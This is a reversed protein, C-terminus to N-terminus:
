VMTSVVCPIIAMIALFTLGFFLAVIRYKNKNEFLYGVFGRM